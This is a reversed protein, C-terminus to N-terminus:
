RIEVQPQYHALYSDILQVMEEFSCKLTSIGVPAGYLKLNSQMTLKKLAGANGMLEEPNNVRIMLFETRQIKLIEVKTITHWLIPPTNEIAIGASNLVLGPRKDFFNIVGKLLVGGFVLVAAAGIMWTVAPPYLRIKEPQLMFWVGLAIFAVSILLLMFMKGKSREIEIEEM